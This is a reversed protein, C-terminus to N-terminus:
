LRPIPLYKDNRRYRRWAKTEEPTPIRFIEPQIVHVHGLNCKEEKAKSILAHEVLTDFLVIGYEDCNTDGVNNEWAPVAGCYCPEIPGAFSDPGNYYHGNKCIYQTYGEYSM